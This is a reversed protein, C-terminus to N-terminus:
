YNMGMLEGQLSNKKISVGRSTTRRTEFIKIKKKM